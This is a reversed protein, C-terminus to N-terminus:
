NYAIRMFALWQKHDILQTVVVRVGRKQSCLRRVYEVKARNTRRSFFSNRNTDKKVSISSPILSCTTPAEDISGEAGVTNESVAILREVSSLYPLSVKNIKDVAVLLRPIGNIHDQHFHSIILLDLPTKLKSAYSKIATSLPTNKSNTGCDYVFNFKGVRGTYFLGQGAPQFVFQCDFLTQDRTEKKMSLLVEKHM